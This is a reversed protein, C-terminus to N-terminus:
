KDNQLKQKLLLELKESAQAFVNIGEALKYTACLDKGLHYRFSKENFSVKELHDDSSTDPSLVRTIPDNSDALAQL